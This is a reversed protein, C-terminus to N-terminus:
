PRTGSLLILSNSYESGSTNKLRKRPQPLPKPPPDDGRQQSSPPQSDLCTRIGEWLAEPGLFSDGRRGSATCRLSGVSCSRGESMGRELVAAAEGGAGSARKVNYLECRRDIHVRQDIPRVRLMDVSADSENIM